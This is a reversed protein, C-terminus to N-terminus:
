FGMVPQGSIIRDGSRHAYIENNLRSPQYTSIIMFTVYSSILQGAKMHCQFLVPSDWDDDGGDNDDDNDDDDDYDDDDDDDYDGDDGGGGHDDYHDKNEEGEEEEDDDNYDDDGDLQDSCATSGISSHRDNLVYHCKLSAEIIFNYDNYRLERYYCPIPTQASGMM